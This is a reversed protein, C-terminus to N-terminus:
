VHARGIELAVRGAEYVVGVNVLAGGERELVNAAVVLGLDASARQLTARIDRAGEVAADPRGPVAFWYEPLVALRAGREAAVELMARARSLNDALADGHAMQIAAVKM